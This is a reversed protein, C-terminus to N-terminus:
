LPLYEKKSPDWKEWRQIPHRPNGKKTLTGFYYVKIGMDKLMTILQNKGCVLANINKDNGWAGWVEKINNEILFNKIITLNEDSLKQCFSNIMKANTAREPYTNLVIWGDMNLSKSIKIIRNITRDSSTKDAASPNMCIAVLPCTGQKGLIFRYSSFEAPKTITPEQGTPYKVIYNTVKQNM